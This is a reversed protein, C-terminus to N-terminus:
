DDENESSSLADEEARYRLRLYVKKLITIEM